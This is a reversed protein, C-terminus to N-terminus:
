YMSKSRKGSKPPKPPKGKKVYTVKVPVKPRKYLDGIPDTIKGTSEKDIPVYGKKAMRATQGKRNKKTKYKDETGNSM